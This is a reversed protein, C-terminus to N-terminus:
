EGAEKSDTVAAADEIKARSLLWDLIKEELIQNALQERKEGQYEVRVKAIHKGTREAVQALKADLDSPGVQLKEQRAIEGFLIAARVKREARAHMERQLEEGMPSDQGTYALFQALEQAMMQEQHHILSPPVPIPNADVLKEIAQERLEAEGRRRAVEELKKRVDLRLELLTAFDGCDKAFEDDLEPLIKERMEKISIAFTATKGRLDERSHDDPFKVDIQKTEGPQGGLLGQEFEPILKGQGLEVPRDKAGMDQKDEGDIKVGYDILLIDGEKAPRAPDLVKLEANQQRLREIEQTVDADKVESAARALVMGETKVGDVKPKVEMKATFEYDKGDSLLPADVNPTAVPMLEHERVAALLAEEVLAQVVESKVQNGFLQKLVNRPVKGPRFGRVKASKQLKAYSDELGKHVREWPIACKVEVEVPSIESVQSPM